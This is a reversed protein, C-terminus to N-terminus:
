MRSSRRIMPDDALILSAGHSKGPGFESRSDRLAVAQPLDIIPAVAAGVAVIGGPRRSILADGEQTGLNEM